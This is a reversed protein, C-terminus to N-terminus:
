PKSPKSLYKMIIPVHFPAINLIADRLIWKAKTGPHIKGKGKKSKGIFRFGVGKIKVASGISHARTGEELYPAYEMHSGILAIMNKGNKPFQVNISRRYAGSNAGRNIRDTALIKAERLTRNGIERVAIAPIAGHEKRIRQIHEYHRELGSKNIGIAV